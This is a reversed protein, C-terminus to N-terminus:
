RSKVNVHDPLTSSKIQVTQMHKGKPTLTNYETLQIMEPEESRVVGKPKPFAIKDNDTYTESIL